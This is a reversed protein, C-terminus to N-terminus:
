WNTLYVCTEPSIRSGVHCKEFVPCLGCPTSLSGNIVNPLRRAKYKFNETSEMDM